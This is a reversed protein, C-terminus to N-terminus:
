ILHNIYNVVIKKIIIKNLIFFQLKLESILPQM